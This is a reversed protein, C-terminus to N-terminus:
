SDQSEPSGYTLALVHKRISFTRLILYYSLCMSFDQSVPLIYLIGWCNSLHLYSALTDSHTRLNLHVMLLHWYWRSRLDDVSMFERQPSWTSVTLIVTSCHITRHQLCQVTDLVPSMALQPLIRASLIWQVHINGCFASLIWPFPITGCFESM